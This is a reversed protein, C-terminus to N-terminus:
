AAPHLSPNSILKRGRSLGAHLVYVCARRKHTLVLADSRVATLRVQAPPTGDGAVQSRRACWVGLLLLLLLMYSYTAAALATM